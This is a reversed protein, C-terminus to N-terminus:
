SKWKEIWQGWKGIEEAIDSAILGASSIRAAAMDGATGHLYAAMVAADPLEYGQALLSAVIGTLVDGSGATAMGSNGTTNFFIKGDPSTVSTYRGKLLVTVQYQRSFRIQTHVREWVSAHAHTMRDFEGAHPTLVIRESLLPYLERNQSLLTIGDADIVLPCNEQLLRVLISGADMGVGPGFGVSQFRALDPVVNEQPDRVLTMAEPLAVLLAQQVNKPVWATVLGCGTRLAARACLIAAGGKGESGAIICTHGFDHKHGAADRPLTHRCIWEKSVFTYGATEKSLFRKVEKRDIGPFIDSPIEQM